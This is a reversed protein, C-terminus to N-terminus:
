LAGFIIFGSYRNFFIVLQDKIFHNHYAFVFFSNKGIQGQGIFFNRRSRGAPFQRFLDLFVEFSYFLLKAQKQQNAFCAKQKLKM